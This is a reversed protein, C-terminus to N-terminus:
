RARLNRWGSQGEGNKQHIQLGEAFHSMAGEADVVDLRDRLGIPVKGGDAPGWLCCRAMRSLDNIRWTVTGGRKRLVGHVKDGRGPAEWSLSSSAYKLATAQQWGEAARVLENIRYVDSGCLASIWSAIRALRACIDPRSVSAVWCVEGLNCQRLNIYDM